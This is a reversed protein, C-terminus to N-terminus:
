AQDKVAASRLAERAAEAGGFMAGTFGGGWTYASALWLGNIATRAGANTSKGPTREPAFGYVAGDPTNLYHQMTEATAMESHVVTSALGPFHSDIDAILAAIWASKHAKKADASRHAWNALSDAGCLTVVSPGDQNLGSDIQRYDVFVYPPMRDGPERGMVFSAEIMQSLRTMWVPLVFTSYRRVGFDKAPRSLGLTVTWLSISPSRGEYRAVFRDEQGQPLMGALVTPAANGLVIRAGDTRQDGGTRSAHRVGTVRDHEILIATAERGAELVGGNAKIIAVLRDTLAQSGGRIYHGGGILYSAQPIAFLVFLMNDPDDHYYALNATLALKVAEDDGFLERLVSGLTAHGEALLPWLRRAAEPAHLFWWDIDERHRAALSVAGRLAFLRRFYEELGAQHQPFRAIAAAQAAVAGHPLVFPAGIPGGRVEYLDGVDIFQLDIDLGLSRIVPLKPDAEDFGDVEHLSSEIALGNHNYVRAAGGFTDNRELVLVRLGAKACLAGSTLGGIGSGIVIADFNRTM